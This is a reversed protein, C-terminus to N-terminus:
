KNGNRNREEEERLWKNILEVEIRHQWPTMNELETLSYGYNFRLAHNTLM